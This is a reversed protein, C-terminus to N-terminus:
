RPYGGVMSSTNYLCIMLPSGGDGVGEHDGEWADDDDDDDVGVSNASADVMCKIFNDATDDDKFRIGFTEKRGLEENGSFDRCELLCAPISEERTIRLNAPILFNACLRAAHHM